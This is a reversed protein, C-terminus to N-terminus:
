LNERLGKFGDHVGVGVLKKLLLVTFHFKKLEWRYDRSYICTLLDIESYKVIAAHLIYIRLKLYISTDRIIRYGAIRM